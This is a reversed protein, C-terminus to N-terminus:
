DTRANAGPKKRSYARCLAMKFRAAQTRVHLKFSRPTVKTPTYRHCLSAHADAKRVRVFRRTVPHKKVNSSTVLRSLIKEVKEAFTCVIGHIVNM